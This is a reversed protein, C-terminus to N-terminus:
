RNKVLWYDVGNDTGYGVVLVAHDLNALQNGCTPEIYVGSRYSMFSPRTADIAVSIPGVTAVATKLANEDGAPIDYYGTDTATNYQANYYCYGM